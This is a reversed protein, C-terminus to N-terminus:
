MFLDIIKPLFIILGLIISVLSSVLVAGAVTDKALKALPHYKPTILDITAEISTNVLELSLVIGILLIVVIWEFSSINCIFGFVVVILTIISVIFFTQEKKYAEIIGDIAFKFSDILRGTGRVKREDRPMM